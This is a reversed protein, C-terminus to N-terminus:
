EGKKFNINRKRFYGKVIDYKLHINYNCCIRLRLIALNINLSMVIIDCICLVTLTNINVFCYLLTAAVTEDM